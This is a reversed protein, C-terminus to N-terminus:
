ELVHPYKLLIIVMVKTCALCRHLLPDVTNACLILTWRGCHSYLALRLRNLYARRSIGLGLSAEVRGWVRIYM